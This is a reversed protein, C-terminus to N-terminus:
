SSALHPGVDFFRPPLEDDPLPLDPITEQQLEKESESQPVPWIRVCKDVCGTAILQSDESFAVCLVADPHKLPKGIPEFTTLDFFHTTKDSSTTAFKTGNPAIALSYFHKTHADFQKIIDGTTADSIRIDNKNGSVLRLGDPTFALRYGRQEIKLLTEGTAANWIIIHNDAGAALKIGDPSYVVSNADSGVKLPGLVINGSKRQWVCVTDDLSTSAFTENDPAFAISWVSGKHGKFSVPVRTNTAVEWVLISGDEGGSVIWHGDPSASVTWVTGHHGLLPEGKQKGTDLDWIRISKDYSCATLLRTGPIFTVDMVYSEHGKLLASALNPTTSVALVDSLSSVDRFPFADDEHIRSTM